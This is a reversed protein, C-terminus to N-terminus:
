EPKAGALRVVPRWKEIEAIVFDTAEKRNGSLPVLGRDNMSKRVDPRNNIAVLARNLRDLVADPTRAPAGLGFYSVFEFNPYGQEAMSPIQPELPWRQSDAVALARLKGEKVLNLATASFLFLVRGGILDVIAPADGKYPIHQLDIGARQKLVEGALHTPTANGPSAYSLKGPNAKAYAVLEAVNRAPTASSVVLFFTTKAMLGAVAFDKIPDYSLKPFLAPNIGHSTGQLLFLTYGDPAARAVAEAAINTSGGPRNEVIFTQGLMDSLEKAFQRTTIDANGGPAYPVLIRVPKTPYNEQAVSAVANMGLVVACVSGLLTRVSHAIAFRIKM